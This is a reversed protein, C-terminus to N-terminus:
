KKAPLDGNQLPEADVSQFWFKAKVESKKFSYFERTYRKLYHCATSDGETYIAWTKPLWKNDIPTDMIMLFKATFNPVNLATELRVIRHEGQSVFLTYIERLPGPSTARLLIVKRGDLDMEGIHKFRSKQMMTIMVRGSPDTEAFFQFASRPSVRLSEEERYQEESSRQQEASVEKGNIHTLSRILHGDRVFWVYNRQYNEKEYPSGKGNQCGSKAEVLEVERESFVYDRLSDWDSEAVQWVADILTKAEEKGYQTASEAAVLTVATGIVLLLLASISKLGVIHRGPM